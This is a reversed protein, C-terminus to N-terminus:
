QQFTYPYPEHKDGEYRNSCQGFKIQDGVKFANVMVYGAFEGTLPHFQSQATHNDAAYCFGNILYINAKRPRTRGYGTRYYESGIKQRGEM